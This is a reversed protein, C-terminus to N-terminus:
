ASIPPRFLPHGFPSSYKEYLALDQSPPHGSFAIGPSSAPLAHSCSICCQCALTSCPSDTHSSKDIMGAQHGDYSQELQTEKSGHCSLLMSEKHGSNASGQQSLLAPVAAAIQQSVLWIVILMLLKLQKM